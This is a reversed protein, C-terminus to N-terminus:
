LGPLSELADLVRIRGADCASLDKRERVARIVEDPLTDLLVQADDLAKGSRGAERLEAIRSKLLLLYEYDNVGEFIALWHKGDDAGDPRVYAPCWNRDKSGPLQNWPWAGRNDCYSWFGTWSDPAGGSIKWCEWEQLRYYPISGAEAPNQSCVYFGMM